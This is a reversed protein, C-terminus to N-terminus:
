FLLLVKGGDENSVTNSNSADRKKKGELSPYDIIHYLTTQTLKEIPQLAVLKIYSLNM